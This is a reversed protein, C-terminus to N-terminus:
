GSIDIDANGAMNMVSYGDSTCDFVINYMDAAANASEFAGKIQRGLELPGYIGAPLTGTTDGSGADFVVQDNVGATIVM